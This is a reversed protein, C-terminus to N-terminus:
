VLEPEKLNQKACILVNLIVQTSKPEKSSM